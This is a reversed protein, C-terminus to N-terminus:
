AARPSLADDQRRLAQRDQQRLAKNSKRHLGAKKLLVGVLVQRRTNSALPPKKMAPKERRQPFPRPNDLM